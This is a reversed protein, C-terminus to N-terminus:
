SRGGRGPKGQRVLLDHRLAGDLAVVAVACTRTEVARALKPEQFAVNM